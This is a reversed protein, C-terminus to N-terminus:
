CNSQQSLLLFYVSSNTYFIRLMIKPALCVYEPQELHPVHGCEDIWVLSASPLTDVFKQAFENGDLITDQRGWIVKSPVPVQPVLKSPAFGGSKMFNVLADNWGERLCHLRGVTVAEDTAYRSKNYYSMQNASSRLPISQLVNVGLKALPVPLTSMMGVGDVFGQADMLILGACNPNIVATEIAAAGGLSAGAICFQQDKGTLVVQQIFSQLAEVKASASFDLVNDLQTYGWGLLDVAYTDIGKSALRSGLRRFELNSSDFGHILIVPPVNTRSKKPWYTYSIGVEGDIHISESVPVKVRKMRQSTDICLEETIGAGICDPPVFTPDLTPATVRTRSPFATFAQVVGSSSSRCSSRSHSMLLATSVASIILASGIRM